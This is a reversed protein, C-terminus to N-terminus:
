SLDVCSMDGMRTPVFDNNLLVLDLGGAWDSLIRGRHNTDGLNWAPYRANFDGLVLLPKQNCSMIRTGLDHLDREFVIDPLNPSFYCSFM